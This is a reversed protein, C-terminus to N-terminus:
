PPAPNPSLRDPPHHPRGLCSREAGTILMNAIEVPPSTATIASLEFVMSRSASTFQPRSDKLERAAEHIRPRMSHVRSLNAIIDSSGALYPVIGLGTILRLDNVLHLDAPDAM